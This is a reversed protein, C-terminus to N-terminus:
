PVHFDPSYMHLNVKMCKYQLQSPVHFHNNANCNKPQQLVPTQHNLEEDARTQSIDNSTVRTTISSRRATRNTDENTDEVIDSTKRKIPPRM